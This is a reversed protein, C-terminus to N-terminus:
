HHNYDIFDSIGSNTFELCDVINLGSIFLQSMMSATAWDSPTNSFRHMMIQVSIKFLLCDCEVCYWQMAYFFLYNGCTFRMPLRLFLYM